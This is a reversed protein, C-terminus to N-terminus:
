PAAVILGAPRLGALLSLDAARPVEGPGTVSLLLQFREGVEARIGSVVDSFFPNSSDPAVLVILDSTGRSLARAAHDGVYGLDDIARRVREANATSVRGADKGNAVLSVTAVSTGAREAVMAATVATLPRAPVPENPM